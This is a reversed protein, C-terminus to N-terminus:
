DSTSAAFTVTWRHDVGSAFQVRGKWGRGRVDLVWLRPTAEVVDFDGEDWRAVDGRGGSVPGEYDLYHPRHDELREVHLTLGVTPEVLSVFTWLVDDQEFMLDWHLPRQSNPGPTHRLIVFRPM